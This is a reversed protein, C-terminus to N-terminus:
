IALVRVSYSYELSSTPRQMSRLHVIGRSYQGFENDRDRVMIPYDDMQPGCHATTHRRLINKGTHLGYDGIGRWHRM